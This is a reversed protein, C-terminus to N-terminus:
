VFMMVVIVGVVALVLSGILMPILTDGFSTKNSSLAGRAEDVTINAPEEGSNKSDFM